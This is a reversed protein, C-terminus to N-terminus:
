HAASHYIVPFHLKINVIEQCSSSEFGAFQARGWPLKVKLFVLMHLYSTANPSTGRSVATTKWNLLLLLKLDLTVAKIQIWIVRLAPVGM